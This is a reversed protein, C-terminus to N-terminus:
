GFMSSRINILKEALHFIEDKSNQVVKIMEEIIQDLAKNSLKDVM